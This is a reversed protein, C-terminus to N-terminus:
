IEESINKYHVNQKEVQCFRSESPACSGKAGGAGDDGQCLAAATAAEKLRSSCTVDSAVASSRGDGSGVGSGGGRGDDRGGVISGGSGGGSPKFGTARM